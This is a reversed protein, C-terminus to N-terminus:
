VMFTIDLGYSIIIIIQTSQVNVIGVNTKITNEYAVVVSPWCWERRIPDFVKLCKSVNELKSKTCTVYM